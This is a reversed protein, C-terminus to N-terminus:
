YGDDAGGDDGGLDDYDNEGTDFYQEANYDDNDEEDEEFDDDQVEEPADEDKEENDEDEKDGKAENAEAAEDFKALREKLTTTSKRVPKKTKSSADLFGAEEWLEQPLLEQYLNVQSIDPVHREKVAKQKRYTDPPDFADYEAAAQARKFGATRNINAFLPGRRMAGRIRKGTAFTRKERETPPEAFPLTRDPFLELDDGGLEDYRTELDADIDFPLDRGGMKSITNRGGGFGGRGGRSM